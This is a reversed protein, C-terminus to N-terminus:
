NCIITRALMYSRLYTSSKALHNSFDDKTAAFLVKILGKTLRDVKKDAKLCNSGNKKVQVSVPSCHMFEGDQWYLVFDHLVHQLEEM